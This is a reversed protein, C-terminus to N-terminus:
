RILLSPIIFVEPFNPMVVAIVIAKIAADAGAPAMSTLEVRISLVGTIAAVPSVLVPSFRPKRDPMKPHLALPPFCPIPAIAPPTRPPKRPLRIAPRPLRVSPVIEGALRLAEGAFFEFIQGARTVEGIGEPLTKGEERSLLRGLEEKRAFIEHATKSLVGWRELLGSRSWAPFAAKAAAIAQKTEEASARAYVGVVDAVNSPNINESGDTGVWEGNILNKHLETM